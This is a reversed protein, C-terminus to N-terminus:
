SLASLAKQFTQETKLSDEGQVFVESRIPSQFVKGLLQPLRTPIVKLHVGPPQLCFLAQNTWWFLTDHCKTNKHSSKSRHTMINWTRMHHNQHTSSKRHLCNEPMQWNALFNNTFAMFFTMINNHFIMINKTQTVIGDLVRNDALAKQANALSTQSHWTFVLKFLRQNMKFTCKQNTTSHPLTPLQLLLLLPLLDNMLKKREDAAVDFDSLLWVISPATCAHIECNEFYFLTKASDTPSHVLSLSAIQRRFLQQCFEHMCAWSQWCLCVKWADMIRGWLQWMQLAPTADLFHTSRSGLLLSLVGNDHGCFFQEAGGKECLQKSTSLNALM